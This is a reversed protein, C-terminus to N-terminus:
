SGGKRSRAGRAARRPTPLLDVRIEEAAEDVARRLRELVAAEPQGLQPALTRPLALLRARVALMQERGARVALDRPVLADTAIQRRLQSLEAKTTALHAREDELTHGRPSPPHPSPSAAPRGLGPTGDALETLVAYIRPRLALEVTGPSAAGGVVAALEAPLRARPARAPLRPDRAV